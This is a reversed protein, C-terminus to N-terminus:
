VEKEYEETCTYKFKSKNTVPKFTGRHKKVRMIYDNLSPENEINCDKRLEFRIESKCLVCYGNFSETSYFPYSLKWEEGDAYFKDVTHKCYPCKSAIGTVLVKM